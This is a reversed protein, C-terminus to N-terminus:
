QGHRDRQSNDGLLVQTGDDFTVSGLGLSEIRWSAPRGGIIARGKVFCPSWLFEYHRENPTIVVAKRLFKRAAANSLSFTACDKADPSDIAGAELVRVQKINALQERAGVQTATCMAVLLVLRKMIGLFYTASRSRPYPAIDASTTFTM